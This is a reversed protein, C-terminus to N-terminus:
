SVSKEKPGVNSPAEPEIVHLYALSPFRRRFQDVLYTYTPVPDEM